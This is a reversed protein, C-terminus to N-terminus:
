DVKVEGGSLAFLPLNLRPCVSTAPLGAYSYSIKDPPDNASTGNDEVETLARTGILAENLAKTVVGGVWARNGLVSVCDVAIHYGGEVGNGPGFKDEWQGSVSGDRHQIAILSFNADQGPALIDHSGVSVRHQVGNGAGVSLSLTSAKLATPMTTPGDCGILLLAVALLPVTLKRM